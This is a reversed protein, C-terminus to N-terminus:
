FVHIRHIQDNYLDGTSVHLCALRDMKRNIVSANCRQLTVSLVHRWYTKFEASNIKGDNDRSRLSIRNLFRVSDKGWYGFQECVLPVLESSNGGIHREGNYKKIKKNERKLAAAGNNLGAASIIDPCWPHALSIDLEVNFNSAGYIAIDPRAQSSSYLNRPEITHSLSVRNLCESWANVMSNHSWVPGGGFKCTILHYGEQDLPKGCECNKVPHSLPLPLGLRIFAALCFLGPSIALKRSTPIADLWARSGRGQLSRLRAADKTSSHEIM